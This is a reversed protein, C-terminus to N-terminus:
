EVRVRRSLEREAPEGDGSRYHNKTPFRGYLETTYYPVLHSLHMRDVVAKLSTPGKTGLGRSFAAIEDPAPRDIVRPRERRPLQPDKASRLANLV